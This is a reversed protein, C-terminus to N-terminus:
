RDPGGSPPEIVPRPPLNMSFAEERAARFWRSAEEMPLRYWDPREEPPLHKVSEHFLRQARNSPPGGSDRVGRTVGVMERLRDLAEQLSAADFRYAGTHAFLFNLSDNGRAAFVREEPIWCGLFHSGLFIDDVPTPDRGFPPFSHKGAKVVLESDLNEQIPDPFM